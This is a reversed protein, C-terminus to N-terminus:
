ISTSEHRGVAVVADRENGSPLSNLSIATVFVGNTSKASGHATSNSDETQHLLLLLLPLLVALLLLLAPVCGGM